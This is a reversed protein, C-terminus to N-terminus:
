WDGDVLINGYSKLAVLLAEVHLVSASLLAIGARGFVRMPGIEVPARQYLYAVL